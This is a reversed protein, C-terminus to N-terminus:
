NRLDEFMDKTIVDPSLIVQWESGISSKCAAALKQSLPILNCSREEPNPHPDELCNGFSAAAIKVSYDAVLNLLGMNLEEFRAKKKEYEARASGKPNTWVDGKTAETM